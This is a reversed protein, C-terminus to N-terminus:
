MLLMWIPIIAFMLPVGIAYVAGIGKIIPSYKPHNLGLTQFASQFGHLLHFGLGIMSIVYIAVFIPKDFTTSVKAYLDKVEGDVGAYTVKPVDGFKMAYWFDGMHIFLFILVLIGLWAMNKAAWGNTATARTVKKAYRNGGRASKNQVWLIIGQIIHLLFGAYLGYALFKIVPNTTMFKAYINFQKGGDDILLQLNGSLHVLLFSILFLGTLSMIVKKGISSTFFNIIWNM